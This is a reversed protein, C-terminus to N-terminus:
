QPDKKAPTAILWPIDAAKKPRALAERACLEHAALLNQRSDNALRSGAASDGAAYAARSAALALAASQVISAPTPGCEGGGVAAALRAIEHVAFAEADALYPALQEPPTGRLGLATLARLGRERAAKALGGRRGLSVASASDAVQGTPTREILALADTTAAAAGGTPAPVGAPLEDPPLVEIRPQGRGRGHGTRLTM